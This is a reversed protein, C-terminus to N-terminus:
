KHLKKEQRILASDLAICASKEDCFNNMQFYLVFIIETSGDLAFNFSNHSKLM